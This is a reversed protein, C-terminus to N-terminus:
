IIFTYIIESVSGIKKSRPNKKSRLYRSYAYRPNFRILFFFDTKMRM